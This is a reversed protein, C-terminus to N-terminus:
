ARLCGQHHWGHSKALTQVWAFAGCMGGVLVLGMVCVSLGEGGDSLAYLV